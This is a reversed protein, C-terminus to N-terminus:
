AARRPEAGLPLEMLFVSGRGDVSEAWIRGGHAEVIHRAISLGLGTGGKRRAKDTRYFREFIRPLDESPIGQGTDSISFRVHGIDEAAEGDQIAEAALAIEGGPPTFKIANHILNV